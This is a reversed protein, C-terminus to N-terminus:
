GGKDWVLGTPYALNRGSVGPRAGLFEPEMRMRWLTWARLAAFVRKPDEVDDGVKQPDLTRSTPRGGMLTPILLWPLVRVTVYGLGKYLSFYGNSWILYTGRAVRAGPPDREHPAEEGAPVSVVTLSHGLVIVSCLVDGGGLGGSLGHCVVRTFSLLGCASVDVM